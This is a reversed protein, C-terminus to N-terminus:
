APEHQFARARKKPSVPRQHMLSQAQNNLRNVRDQMVRLQQAEAMIAILIQVHDAIRYDALELRRAHELRAERDLLQTVCDLSPQLPSLGFRPLQIDRRYDAVGHRAARMLLGPRHIEALKKLIDAM